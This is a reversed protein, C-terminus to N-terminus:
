WLAHLEYIEGDFTYYRKFNTTKCFDEFLSQDIDLGNIILNRKFACLKKFSDVREINNMSNFIAPNVYFNSNIKFGIIFHPLIGNRLLIEKQEPYVPTNCCPFGLNFIESANKAIVFEIPKPKNSPQNKLYIRPIWGYIIIDTTFIDAEASSSTTSVFNSAKQYNYSNITHAISLYYLNVKKRDKTSLKKYKIILEEIKNIDNCFEENRIFFDQMKQKRSCSGRHRGDIISTSLLKCISRFNNLSTDDPDLYKINAWCLRAKEGAMFISQALLNPSDTDRNFQKRLNENSEGRMIFTTYRSGTLMNMFNWFQVIERQSLPQGNDKLIKSNSLAFYLSICKNM